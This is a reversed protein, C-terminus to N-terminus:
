SPQYTGGPAHTIDEFRVLDAYTAVGLKDMTRRKYTSVSNSSVGLETAIEGVTLGRRLLLYVRREQKSLGALRESRAALRELPDVMPRLATGNAVDRVAKLLVEDPDTKCVYGLAGRNLAEQAHTAEPHMSVVLVRPPRRWAAMRDLLDLGSMDPLNLDLLVVDVPLCGALGHVFAEGREFTGVVEFGGSGELLAKIGIRTVVHDDVVVARVASAANM